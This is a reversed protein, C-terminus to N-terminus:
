GVLSIPNALLSGLDPTFFATTNDAGDSGSGNGNDSASSFTKGATELNDILFDVEIGPDTTIYENTIFTGPHCAQIMQWTTEFRFGCGGANNDWNPDTVKTWTQQWTLPRLSANGGDSFQVVLRPYGLSSPSVLSSKFDFSSNPFTATPWGYVHHVLVGAYGSVTDHIRIAQHYDSDEAPQDDTAVWGAHAGGGGSFFSLTAPANGNDAAAAGLPLAFLATLAAVLAGRFTSSV